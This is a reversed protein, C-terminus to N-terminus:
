SQEGNSLETVSEPSLSSQEDADLINSSVEVIVVEKGDVIDDRRCTNKVNARRKEFMKGKFSVQRGSSGTKFQTTIVGRPSFLVKLQKKKKYM